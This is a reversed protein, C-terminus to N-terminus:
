TLTIRIGARPTRRFLGSTLRDGVDALRALVYKSGMARRIEAISGEDRVVTAVGTWVPAGDAVKGRVDCPRLEVRADRALRKTKGTEDVTIVVLEHGSRAIWVPTAVGVGSRRFTTLAMYKASAASDLQGTDPATGESL